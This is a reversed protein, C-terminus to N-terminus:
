ASLALDTDSHPEYLAFAEECNAAQLLELDDSPRRLLLAIGERFLQHDDVLLIKIGNSGRLVRGL